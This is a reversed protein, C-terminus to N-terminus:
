KYCISRSDILMVSSSVIYIQLLLVFVICTCSCRLWGSVRHTLGGGFGAGGDNGDHHHDEELSFKGAKKSRRMREQVIRKMM